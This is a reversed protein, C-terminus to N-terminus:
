ERIFAGDEQTLRLIRNFKNNSDSFYIKGRSNNTIFVFSHVAGNYWCQFQNFQEIDRDLIAARITDCFAMEKLDPNLYKKIVPIPIDIVDEDEIQIKLTIEGDDSWQTYLDYFNVQGSFLRNAMAFNVIFVLCLSLIIKKM